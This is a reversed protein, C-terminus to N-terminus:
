TFTINLIWGEFTYLINYTFTTNVLEWKWLLFTQSSFFVKRFLISVQQWLDRAVLAGPARESILLRRRELRRDTCFKSLRRMQPMTPLMCLAVRGMAVRYASSVVLPHGNTKPKYCGAAPVSPSWQAVGSSELKLVQEIWPLTHCCPLLNKRETCTPTELLGVNL